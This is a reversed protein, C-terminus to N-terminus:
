GGLCPPSVARSAVPRGLPQSLACGATSGVHSGQSVGGARERARGRGGRDRGPLQLEGRPVARGVEADHSDYGISLDQGSEFLFDGGRLSLVVRATSAPRGSSRAASSRASTTSSRTAATSPRRSARRHLAEPGLALGYPGDVGAALLAEVRRPSTARSVRRLRRQARDADHPSAEAIGAIGAAECGHFVAVNEAARSGSRPRTSVHSTSTPPAGTPTACSPAHSAFAVRLEVLPLVRRQSRASATSRATPSSTSAASTRRRLAGLRPARLLRRAQPRRPQAHPARTAEDDLLSGAPRPSRPAVRRLLHNM